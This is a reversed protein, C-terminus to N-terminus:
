AASAAAAPESSPPTPETPATPEVAEPLVPQPADGAIAPAFEIGFLAGLGGGAITSAVVAAADAIEGFSQRGVADSAFRNALYASGVTIGIGIVPALACRALYKARNTRSVTPEVQQEAQKEISMRVSWLGM